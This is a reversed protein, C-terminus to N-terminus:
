AGCVVGVLLAPLILIPISSWATLGPIKTAILTSIVGALAAVSGVSIDIGGLIIVYTLGASLMANIAMQTTLNVLNNASFFKGGTGLGFGLILCILIVVVMNKVFFEKINFGKALTKNETM